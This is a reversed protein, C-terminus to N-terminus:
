FGGSPLYITMTGTVPIGSIRGRGVGGFQNIYMDTFAQYTDPTAGGTKIEIGFISGDPNYTGIDLRRIGIPGEVELETGAVNVGNNALFTAYNSAATTGPAPMGSVSAFKGDPTRLSGDPYLRVNSALSSPVTGAIPPGEIPELESYQEEPKEDDKETGTADTHNIPNNGVYSYWNINDKYGIPDTQLFRGLSASYMRAKYYYLNLQGFFLQGTYRMRVGTLQNPEGFPGYTLPTSANGSSDATAIVSGVHDTYLWSKNTTSAGEYWVLTENRLPGPVYRRLLSNNSDYEAILRDGDYVFNTVAGAFNTQRLRGKADYALTSNNVSTLRNELDYTYTSVGDNKLNGNGDYSLAAGAVSAYRNQGDPTYARTGNTYGTWQYSSNDWSQSLKEGAQNYTYGYTVAAAGPLSHKLSQLNAQNDFGYTTSSGNGFFITQRRSLDDYAINSVLSTTGNEKVDILRNLADYDYSVFFNDPWIVKSRNGAPDYKYQMQISGATSVDIRGGHDYHLSTNFSSNAYNASTMHGVLDYGFTVNNSAYAGPYTRSIPRNLNDFGITITDGSRKRLSTVNDNADYGYQEYDTNSSSGNKTLDPFYTYALRYMDDYKYTTLNGNADAASVVKGHYPDYTYTVYTQPTNSGVGRRIDQVKGDLFYDTQTVRNGGESAQLYQTVLYNRDFDDYGYDTVAVPAAATPCTQDSSTLGPGWAEKVKESYTYTRCSVLWQSGIQESVRKQNGHEDYAIIKLKNLADQVQTLRRENDYSYTTLDPVDSRPGDVVKLNGVQDYTYSTTLQLNGSGSDVITVQPVYHNQPNYGYTTIVSDSASLKRTETTKLFFGPYGPYAYSSYGYTTVPQVGASDAPGTVTWLDGQPTYTFSTKQQRADTFLAVKNTVPDYDYRVATPALPSNQSPFRTVTQVNHTCRQAAACPADDYTYKVTVDPNPASTWWVDLSLIMGNRTSSQIVRDQGDYVYDVERRMQDISRTVKGRPTFYTITSPSGTGPGVEESRYDSFYYNYTKGNANTQTQVRGLSDYTNTLVANDKFNPYFFSALRGVANPDYSFTTPQQNADTFQKLQNQGDYGYGVNRGNGDSISTIMGSPNTLTLTRGLSNQIQTLNGGTYSLQVQMGNPFAYNSLNGSADFNLKTHDLKEYVYTGNLLTLRASSGLPPNYTGDPLKTFVESNLGQTVIVTNNLLQDGFWRHGLNAVVIKALPHSSDSMLDLSVMTEVISSVADLASDEGLGQFGDTGIKATINYNHTWGQGLAGQKTRQGSSYLRKFSLSNPFDGTGVTIDDHDYLYNGKFLDIPDNATPGFAQRLTGVPNPTNVESEQDYEPEGELETVIGGHLGDKIISAITPLGDPSSTIALYGYGTWNGESIKCNGPLIVRMNQTNISSGLAGILPFCTNIDGSTTTITSFLQYNSANIDLVGDNNAIAMDLLKVTSVASKGSVQEAATSEFISYHMAKSYSVAAEKTADGTDSTVSEKIGPLDIYPGSNIGAIGILHHNISHTQGLADAIKDSAALQAMYTSALVALSAGAKPNCNTAAADCPSTSGQGNILNDRFADVMGRGAPGWGNVVLYTNNAGPILAQQFTQNLCSVGAGATSCSGGVIAPHTITFSILPNCNSSNQATCSTAAIKIPAGHAVVNGSSSLIPTVTGDANSQYSITTQSGYLVDSAFTSTIGDYSIQLTPKYQAIDTENYTHQVSHGALSNTHSASKDENTSSYPVIVQGGIVDEITADPKNARIYSALNSAYTTLNARVGNRNFGEGGLPGFATGSLANGLYSSFDYGAAAPLNITKKIPTHPKLSPDYQVTAGNVNQVSVWVHGLKIDYLQGAGPCNVQTNSRIVIAPIQGAGLLNTVACASNPNSSSTDIGLWNGIQDATLELTGLEYSASYGSQRLLAIMLASQDFATGQKDLLAGLAGKHIGWEPYYEINNRVYEFILDPDYKLARALEVIQASVGNNNIASAIPSQAASGKALTANPSRRPVLPPTIRGAPIKPNLNAPLPKAHIMAESDKLNVSPFKVVSFGTTMPVSPTVSAPAIPESAGASFVSGVSLLLIASAVKTGFSYM